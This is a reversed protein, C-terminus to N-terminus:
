QLRTRDKGTEQQSPAGQPCSRSQGVEASEAVPAFDPVLPCGQKNPLVGKKGECTRPFLPIIKTKSHLVRLILHIAQCPSGESNSSNRSM